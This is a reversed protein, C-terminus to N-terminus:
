LAVQAQVFQKKQTTKMITTYHKLMKKASTVIFTLYMEILALVVWVDLSRLVVWVNMKLCYCGFAKRMKENFENEKDKSDKFAEKYTECFKDYMRKAVRLEEVTGLERYQELQKVDDFLKLLQVIENKSLEYGYQRSNHKTLNDLLNCVSETM